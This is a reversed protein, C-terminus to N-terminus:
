RLQPPCYYLKSIRFMAPIQYFANLEIDGIAMVCDGIGVDYNLTAVYFSNPVDGSGPQFQLFTYCEATEGCAGSGSVYTDIWAVVGYVCRAKGISSPGIDTGPRCGATGVTPPTLLPIRPGATPSPQVVETLRMSWAAQATAAGASVPTSSPVAAAPATFLAPRLAGFVGLVAFGALGGLLALAGLVSNPYARRAVGKGAWYIVLWNVLPIFALVLIGLFRGFGTKLPNLGYTALLAIVVYVALQSVVLVETVRGVSVLLLAGFGYIALLLLLGFLLSLGFPPEPKVASALAAAGPTSVREPEPLVTQPLDRGCYRCVIAADQIREACYPCRKM